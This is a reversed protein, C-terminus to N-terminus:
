GQGQRGKTVSPQKWHVGRKSYGM